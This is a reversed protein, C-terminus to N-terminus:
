GFVRKAAKPIEQMIAEYARLMGPRQRIETYKRGGFVWFRYGTAQYMGENAESYSGKAVRFPMAGAYRESADTANGAGFEFFVVPDGSALISYAGDGTKEVTVTVASGYTAEAAARGVEAIEQIFQDLKTDFANQIKEVKEIAREISEPNEWDLEIKHNGM